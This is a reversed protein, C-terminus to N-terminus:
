ALEHTLIAFSYISTDFQYFTTLVTAQPHIIGIEKLQLKLEKTREVVLKRRIKKITIKNGKNKKSSM